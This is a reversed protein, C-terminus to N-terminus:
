LLAGTRELLKKDFITDVEFWMDNYNFTKVKEGSSILLRFMSTIDMNQIIENSNELIKVLRNMGNRTVKFVGLFQGQIMKIDKVKQGIDTLLYNENYSFSELDDLPNSFRKEWLPLFNKNSPVVFDGEVNRLQEILTSEFIVDSYVIISDDDIWERAVLLSKLSSSSEWNRNHFQILNPFMQKYKEGKYGTVIAIPETGTEKLLRITHGVITDENISVMGKPVDKTYEGLRSGRGAALILAKM